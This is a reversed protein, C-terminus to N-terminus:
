KTEGRTIPRTLDVDNEVKITLVVTGTPYKNISAVYHRGATILVYDDRMERSETEGTELDEVTVRIPKGTM